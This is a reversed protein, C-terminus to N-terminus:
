LTFLFGFLISATGLGGSDFGAFNIWDHAFEGDVTLQMIGRNTHRRLLIAQTNVYLGGSTDTHGFSARPEIVDGDPDVPPFVIQSTDFVGHIHSLRGGLITAFRGQPDNCRNDISPGWYWGLGCHVGARRIETLTFNFADDVIGLSVPTFPDTDFEEGPFSRTQEGFASLYSGGLDFFINARGLGPGIPQRVGGIISYGTSLQESLLDKGLVFTPGVKIYPGSLWNVPQCSSNQNSKCNNSRSSFSSTTSPEFYSTAEIRSDQKGPINNTWPASANLEVALTNRSEDAICVSLMFALILVQLVILWFYQVNFVLRPM